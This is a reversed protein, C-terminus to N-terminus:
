SADSASPKPPSEEKPFHRSLYPGWNQIMELPVALVAVVRSSVKKTLPDVRNEVINLKAVGAIISVGRIDEAYITPASLPDIGFPIEAAKMEVTEIEIAM